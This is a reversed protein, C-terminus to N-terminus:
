YARSKRKELCKDRETKNESSKLDLSDHLLDQHGKFRRLPRDHHYWFETEEIASLVQRILFM